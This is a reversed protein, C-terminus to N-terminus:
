PQGPSATPTNPLTMLHRQWARRYYDESDFPRGDPPCLDSHFQNGSDKPAYEVRSAYRNWFDVIDTRQEDTHNNIQDRWQQAVHEVIANLSPDDDDVWRAVDRTVLRSVALQLRMAALEQELEAVRGDVAPITSRTDDMEVGMRRLMAAETSRQWNRRVRASTRPSDDIMTVEDLRARM